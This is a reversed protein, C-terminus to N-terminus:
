APAMARLLSVHPGSALWPFDAVLEKWPRAALEDYAARSVLIGPEMLTVPNTSAELHFALRGDLEVHDLRLTRCGRAVLDRDAALVQAKLAELALDDLGAEHAVIKERLEEIGFCLRLLYDDADLAARVSAPAYEGLATNWEALLREAHPRERAREADPHVGFLEHRAFDVYLFAKEVVIRASCAGCRYTHLTRDLVAQRMHPHREANISDACFVSVAIGCECEIRHTATQSM